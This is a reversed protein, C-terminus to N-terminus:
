DASIFKSIAPSIPNICGVRELQDAGLLDKFDARAMAELGADEGPEGGEDPADLSPFIEGRGRPRIESVLPDLVDLDHDAVPAQTQGLVGRVIRHQDRRGERADRCREDLLESLASAEDLRDAATPIFLHEQELLAAVPQQM